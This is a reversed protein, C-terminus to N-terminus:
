YSGKLVAASTFNKESSLRGRSASVTLEIKVLESNPSLAHYFVLNTMRVSGGSLPFSEGYNRRIKIEEGDLFIEVINEQTSTASEFTELVLKGPHAGL